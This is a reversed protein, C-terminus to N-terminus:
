GCNTAPASRSRHSASCGSRNFTDFLQGDLDRRDTVVIITPNKLKPQKAVLHAYLEMEMSKGSGPTGSSEPRVPAGAAVVTNGVAKTVAFYQHPKAIRKVYGDAGADFAVFNHQLQM